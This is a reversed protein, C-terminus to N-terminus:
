ECGKAAESRVRADEDTRAKRLAAAALPHRIKRLGEAAGLRAFWDPDMALVEALPGITSEAGITGLANATMRIIWGRNQEKEPKLHPLLISVAREDRIRGLAEILSMRLTDDEATGLLAVLPGYARVAGILGLARAAYAVTSPNTSVLAELLPLVALEGVEALAQSYATRLRWYEDGMDGADEVLDEDRLADLERILQYVEDLGCVRALESVKDYPLVEWACDRKIEKLIEDFSRM